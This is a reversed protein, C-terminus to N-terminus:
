TNDRSLYNERYRFDPNRGFLPKLKKSATGGFPLFPMDVLLKAVDQMPLTSSFLRHVRPFFFLVDSRKGSIISVDQLSAPLLGDDGSTVITDAFFLTQKGTFPPL